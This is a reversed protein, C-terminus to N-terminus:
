RDTGPGKNAHEAAFGALAATDVASCTQKWLWATAVVRAPLSPNPAVVTKGTAMPRLAELDTPDRYQVLVIGAELAGVQVPKSLPTSEVGTPLSGPTHPGSTPPDTLYTPEVGGPLVHNLNSDLTERVGPGCKSSTTSGKGCAALGLLGLITVSLLLITM